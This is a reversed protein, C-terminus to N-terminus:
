ISFARTYSLDYCMSCPGIKFFILPDLLELRRVKDILEQTLFLSPVYVNIPVRLSCPVTRSVLALTLRTRLCM